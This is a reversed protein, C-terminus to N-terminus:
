RRRRRGVTGPSCPRRCRPRLRGSARPRLPGLRGRRSTRGTGRRRCASCPLSTRSRSPRRVLGWSCVCPGAGLPHRARRRGRRGFGVACPRLWWQRKASAAGGVGFASSLPGSREVRPDQVNSEGHGLPPCATDSRLVRPTRSSSVRHRVPPCAPGSRLVRPGPVNSVVPRFTRSARDSRMVRGAQVCSVGPGLAHSARGLRMVRGAEICSVGTPAHGRVPTAHENM